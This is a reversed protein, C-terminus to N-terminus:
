QKIRKRSTILDECRTAVEPFRQALGLLVREMENPDHFFPYFEMELAIQIRRLSIGERLWEEASRFLANGNDSTMWVLIGLLDAVIEWPWTDGIASDLREALSQEGADDLLRQVWEFSIDFDDDERDIQIIRLTQELIEQNM